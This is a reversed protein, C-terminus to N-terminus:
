GIYAWDSSSSSPPHPPFFCLEVWGMRGMGFVRAGGGIAECRTKSRPGTCLRMRVPFVEGVEHDAGSGTAAFGCHELNDVVGFFGM